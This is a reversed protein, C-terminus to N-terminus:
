ESAEKAAKIPAIALMDAESRERIARWVNRDALEHTFVPREMVREIYAHLAPFDDTLMVGTFASLVVAQHSTLRESM